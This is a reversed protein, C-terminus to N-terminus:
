RIPRTLSLGGILGFQSLLWLVVIVVLLVYIVTVIPPPISFAASLARVAWFILGLVILVVLLSLINV